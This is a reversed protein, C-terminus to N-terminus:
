PHVINNRIAFRVVESVSHVNLKRMLNARHTEATRLSINLRAAVEKSSLGESILQVVERERVTLVGGEVVREVEPPQLYDRLMMESVKATFYPRNNRLNEIAATLSHGADSKLVYGRAGAELVEHVLQESDHVTLILIQTRPLERRLRRTAELGNLEPMSLDMIVIDPRLELALAIAERGDRAEGCVRCGAMADLVSRLGERVIDHDDVILIRLTKM